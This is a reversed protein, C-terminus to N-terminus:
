SIEVSMCGRMNCSYVGVVHLEIKAPKFSTRAINYKFIQLDLYKSFTGDRKLQNM